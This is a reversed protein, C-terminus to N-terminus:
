PAPTVSQTGATLCLLRLDPTVALRTAEPSVGGLADGLRPAAGLLVPHELNPRAVMAHRVHGFPEATWTM